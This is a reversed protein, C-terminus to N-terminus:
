GADVPRLRPATARVQAAALIGIIALSNRITGDFVQPV